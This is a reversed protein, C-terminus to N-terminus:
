RRSQPVRGLRPDRRLLLDCAHDAEREFGPSDAPILLWHGIKGGLMEISRLSPFERGLEESAPDTGEALVLWVGNDRPSKQHDRLMCVIRDGVYVAFGSFLRRVEPRLPALSELVFPFPPKQKVKARGPMVPECQFM